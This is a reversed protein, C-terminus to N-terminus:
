KTEPDPIAPQCVMLKDETVMGAPGIRPDRGYWKERAYVACDFAELCAELYQALIFDPTNSGNEASNCNIAHEIDNRLAM